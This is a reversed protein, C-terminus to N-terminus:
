LAPPRYDSTVVGESHMSALVERRWLFRLALLTVVYTIASAYVATWVLTQCRSFTVAVFVFLPLLGTAHVFFMRNYRRAFEIDWYKKTLAPHIMAFNELNFIKVNKRPYPRPTARGPRDTM